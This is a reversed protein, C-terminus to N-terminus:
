DFVERGVEGLARTRLGHPLRTVGALADADGEDVRAHGRDIAHRRGALEQLPRVQREFRLRRGKLVQVGEAMAGVHRADDTAPVVLGDVPLVHTVGGM